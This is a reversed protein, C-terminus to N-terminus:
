KALGILIPAWLEFEIEYINRDHVLNFFIQIRLTILSDLEMLKM